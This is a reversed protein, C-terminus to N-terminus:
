SYLTHHYDPIDPRSGSGWFILLLSVIIATIVFGILVYSAQKEDKVYGGSYKIVQQVLKPTPTQFHQTARQFEEDKFVM